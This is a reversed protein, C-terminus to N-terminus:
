FRNLPEVHVRPQSFFFLVPGDFFDCLQLIEGIQPSTEVTCILVLTQM